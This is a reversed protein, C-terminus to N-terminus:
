TAPRPAGKRSSVIVCIAPLESAKEFMRHDHSKRLGLNQVSKLKPYSDTCKPVNIKSHDHCLTNQIERWVWRAM